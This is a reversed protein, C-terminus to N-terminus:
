IQFSSVKDSKASPPVSRYAGVVILFVTMIIMGGDAIATTLQPWSSGSALTQNAATIEALEAM